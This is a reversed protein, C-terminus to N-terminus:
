REWEDTDDPGIFPGESLLWMLICEAMIHGVCVALAIGCFIGLTM